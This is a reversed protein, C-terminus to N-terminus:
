SVRLRANMGIRTTDNSWAAGDHKSVLMRSEFPDSQGLALKAGASLPQSFSCTFPQVGIGGTFPPLSVIITGSSTGSITCTFSIDIGLETGYQKWKARSISLSSITMVGTVTPTYDLWNDFQDIADAIDEINVSSNRLNFDSSLSM